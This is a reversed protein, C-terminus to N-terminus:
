RYRNTELTDNTTTTVFDSKKRAIHDTHLLDNVNAKPFRNSKITQSFRFMYVWECECECLCLCLNVARSSLVSFKNSLFRVLESFVLWSIFENLTHVKAIRFPSDLLTLFKRSVSLSVSSCFFMTSHLAFYLIYIHSVILLSLFLSRRLMPPMTCGNSILVVLSYHALSHSCLLIIVIAPSCCCCAGNKIPKNNHGNNNSNNKNALMPILTNTSNSEWTWQSWSWRQHSRECSSKFAM